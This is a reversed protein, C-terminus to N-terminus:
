GGILDLWEQESLVVIGLESAKTAKSGAGPGAILYDTNKSVSGAVKAGLSEARAKAENRTMQELTGTFVVTKGAVKSDGVRPPVFPQVAVFGALDEVVARNHAEDFFEILDARISPGVRAITALDQYAASEPDKAALMAARWADLTLYHRALLKATEEGIQPIGLAYIFRELSIQRRTEIARLLNDVSLQGWGERDLLIDRKDKLRFLDAPSKILGDAFFAEIHKGGLGDIDFAMRSVFHRLREVAQAPCILGGTCRTAAEGPVREVHSGCVPCATPFRFPASRGKREADLVAVVQPIVDGARQVIVRDGVRIDKRAIEDENHLTARGVMVGGVNVPELEAVPTLVGTRGVQITISKLTTQAQEAPFKHAIAWRPARGIFGLREQWDIRDVKYVVGDIDYDLTARDSQVAEYFALTEALDHTVKRRPNVSFGWAMLQENLGHQSEPRKKLGEVAGFAYAFFQLPRSKTISADLQRLSGAAANRPNAFVPKGAAEQADNLKLFGAKSMYVEGRIEIRAPHNGDKLRLPVGAVHKLNATIDEGVAGDGRTAGRVFVGDEYTLNASLGDIKPEAALPVPTEAPLGLFRRIRDVFDTVDEPAFANDLSLMPTLHAVKAFGQAAEAGVKDSPSDTRKLKPFRKEIAENRQMLADFDADTIEPADKQYYLKRHHEIDKALQALEFSAEMVDLEDVPKQVPAKKSTM